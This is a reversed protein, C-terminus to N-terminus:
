ESGWLQSIGSMSFVKGGDVKKNTNGVRNISNVAGVKDMNGVKNVNDVKNRQRNRNTVKTVNVDEDPSKKTFASLVTSSSLKKYTSM